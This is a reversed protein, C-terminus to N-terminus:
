IPRRSIIMLQQPHTHIKAKFVDAVFMQKEGIKLMKVAAKQPWASTIAIAFNKFTLQKNESQQHFIDIQSLSSDIV